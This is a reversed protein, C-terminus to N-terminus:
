AKLIRVRIPTSRRGALDDREGGIMHQIAAAQRIIRALTAATPAVAAIPM